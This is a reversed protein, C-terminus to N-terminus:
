GRINFLLAGRSLETGTENNSFLEFCPSVKFTHHVVDFLPLAANPKKTTVRLASAASGKSQTTAKM